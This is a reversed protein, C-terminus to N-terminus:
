GVRYPRCPRGDRRGKKKLSLFSSEMFNTSFGCDFNQCAVARHQADNRRSFDDSPRGVAAIRDRRLM